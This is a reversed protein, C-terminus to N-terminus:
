NSSELRVGGSSVSLGFGEARRMEGALNWVEILRRVEQPGRKELFEESVTVRWREPGEGVEVTLAGTSTERPHVWDFKQRLYEVVAESAPATTTKIM